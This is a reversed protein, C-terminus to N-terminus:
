MDMDVDMQYLSNKKYEKFVSNATVRIWYFSLVLNYSYLIEDLCSFLLLVIDMDIIYEDLM